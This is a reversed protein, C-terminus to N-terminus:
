TIQACGGLGDGMKGATQTLRGLPRRAASRLASLKAIAGSVNADVDVIREEREYDLKRMLVRSDSKVQCPAATMACHEAQLAEAFFLEM